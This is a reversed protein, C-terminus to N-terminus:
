WGPAHAVPKTLGPREREPSAPQPSKEEGSQRRLMPLITEKALRDTFKGAACLQLHNSDAFDDEEFWASADIVPAANERGLQEVWQHVDRLTEPSYWSRFAPGEPMLVLAAPTGDKRCSAMLERLAMCGPGGLHFGNLFRRYGDRTVQIFRRRQEPTPTPIPSLEGFENVHWEDDLAIDGPTLGPAILKVLSRRQSYCPLAMDALLDRRVNPRYTAAYREMLTLDRWSLKHTPWLEPCLEGFFTQSCLLVPMVEVLLLDPRGGDRQLRRWTM